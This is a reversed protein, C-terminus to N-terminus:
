APVSPRTATLYHDGAISLFDSFASLITATTFFGNQDRIILGDGNPLDLKWNQRLWPQKEDGGPVRMMPFSYWGGAMGQHTLLWIMAREIVASSALERNLLLLSQIALSTEFAKNKGVTYQGWSGDENQLSNIAKIFRERGDKYLSDGCMRLARLAHYTPYMRSDWWYAQWLGDPELNRKLYEIGSNVIRRNAEFDARTLVQLVVATVDVHSEGWAPFGEGITDPLYTRFGGDQRQYKRLAAMGRRIVPEDPKYFNMLFNLVWATTDADEPAHSNAAWGKESVLGELNRAMPRLIKMASQSHAKKDSAQWDAMACGVVASVWFPLEEDFVVFDAFGAEPEYGAKFFDVARRGAESVTSAPPCAALSAAERRSQKGARGPRTPPGVPTLGYDRKQSQLVMQRSKDALNSLTACLGSQLSNLFTIWRPCDIERVSRKAQEWYHRIEHLYTEAAGSFYLEKGVLDIKTKDDGERVREELKCGTIVRTLLYTYRGNKLDDKWDRFDDLLQDAVYYYDFSRELPEMYEERGSLTCLSIIILKAMSSKGSLIRFSDRPQYQNIVGTHYKGELLIATGYRKHLRRIYDLPLRRPRFLEDLISLAELNYANSLLIAPRSAAAQEDMVTDQLLLHYLYLLSMLSIKRLQKKNLEPFPDAFLFPFYTYLNNGAEARDLPYFHGSENLEVFGPMKRSMRQFAQWVDRGERQLDIANARNNKSISVAM